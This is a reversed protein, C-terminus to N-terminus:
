LVSFINPTVNRHLVIDWTMAARKLSCFAKMNMYGGINQSSATSEQEETLNNQIQNKEGLINLIVPPFLTQAPYFTKSYFLSLEWM